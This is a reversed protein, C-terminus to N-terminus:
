SIFSPDRRPFAMAERGEHECWIEFETLNQGHAVLFADVRGYHPTAGERRWRHIARRDTDSILWGDFRIPENREGDGQLFLDLYALWSERHVADNRLRAPHRIREKETGARGEGISVRVRRKQRTTKRAMGLPYSTERCLGSLIPLKVADGWCGQVSQSGVTMSM